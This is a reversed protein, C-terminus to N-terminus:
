SLRQASDGGASAGGRMRASGGERAAWLASRRARQTRRARYAAGTSNSALKTNTGRTGLAMTSAPNLVMAAPM